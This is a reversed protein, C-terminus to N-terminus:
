FAYSIGAQILEKFYAFHTKDKSKKDILGLSLKANLNATFAYSLAQSLTYLQERGRNSRQNLPDLLTFGLNADYDFSAILKPYLLTLSISHSNSHYLSNKSRQYSGMLELQWVSRNFRAEQALGWAITKGSFDQDYNLQKSYTWKITSAGLSFLSIREGLTFAASNSFFNLTHVAKYDRALYSFQLDIFTEGSRKSAASRPHALGFYLGSNILGQDNQFIVPSRRNFYYQGQVFLRPVISFYPTPTFTYKGAIESKSYGSNSHAVTYTSTTNEAIVNSDWGVVEEFRLSGKQVTAPFYRRRLEELRIRAIVAAEGANPYTLVREYAPIVESGVFEQQAAPSKQAIQDRKIEGIQLSALAPYNGDQSGQIGNSVKGFHALAESSEGSVQAMTGLYYTAAAMKHKSSICREFETHAAAFDMLAYYSQGKQFYADRFGAQDSVTLQVASFYTIAQKYDQLAFYCRARLYTLRTNLLAHAPMKDLTALAQQYDGRQYAANFPAFVNAKGPSPLFGFNLLLIGTFTALYRRNPAASSSPTNM